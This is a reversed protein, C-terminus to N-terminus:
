FEKKKFIILSIRMSIVYCILMLISILYVLLNIHKKLNLLILTIDGLMDMKNLGMILVAPLFVIGLIAFRAKEAGLKIVLPLQISNFIMSIVWCSGILYLREKSMEQNRIIVYFHTVIYGILIGLFSTLLALIYKAYVIDNRSTPLTVAYLEWNAQNDYAFTTLNYMVCFLMIYPIIFDISIFIYAFSVIGGLVIYKKNVLLDKLILGTM